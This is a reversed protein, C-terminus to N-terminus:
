QHNKLFHPSSLACDSMRMLVERSLTKSRFMSELRREIYRNTDALLDSNKPKKTRLVQPLKATQLDTQGFPRQFHRIAERMETSGLTESELYARKGPPSLSLRMIERFRLEKAESHGEFQQNRIVALTSKGQQYRRDDHFDKGQFAKLRLLSALKRKQRKQGVRLQRRGKETHASLATLLTDISSNRGNM